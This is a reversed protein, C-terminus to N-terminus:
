GRAAKRELVIRAAALICGDCFVHGGIEVMTATDRESVACGRCRIVRTPQGSLEAAQRALEAHRATVKSKESM